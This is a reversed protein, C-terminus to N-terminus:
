VRTKLGAPQFLSLACKAKKPPYIQWQGTEYVNRVNCVREGIMMGVTVVMTVLASADPNVVVTVVSADFYPITHYVGVSFQHATEWKIHRRVQTILHFSGYANSKRGYRTIYM